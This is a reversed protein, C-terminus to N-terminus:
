LDCLKRAPMRDAYEYAFYSLDLRFSGDPQLDIVRRLRAIFPNRAPDKEGYASLGMVKYESNNVSFGLYATITSYLLGISHPFRIEHDLAVRNGRGAGLGATTWEGVGDVTLIAAEEFPSPYFAG